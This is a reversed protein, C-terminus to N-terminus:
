LLLKFPNRYGRTPARKQAIRVYDDMIETLIREDYVGRHQHIIRARESEIYKSHGLFAYEAVAALIGRQCLENKVRLVDTPQM